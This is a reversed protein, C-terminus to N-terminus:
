TEKKKLQLTNFISVKIIQKSKKDEYKKKNM